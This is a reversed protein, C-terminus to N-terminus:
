REKGTMEGGGGDMALSARQHREMELINDHECGGKGKGENNDAAVSAFAFVAAAAVSMESATTVTIAAPDTVLQLGSSASSEAANAM